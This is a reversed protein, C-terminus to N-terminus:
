KKNLIKIKESSTISISISDKCSDKSGINLSKLACRKITNKDVDKEFNKDIEIYINNKMM